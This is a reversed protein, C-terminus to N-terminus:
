FRVMEMNINRTHTQSRDLFGDPGIETCKDVIFDRQNQDYIEVLHYGRSVCFKEADESNMEKKVLGICGFNLHHADFWVIDLDDLDSCLYGLFFHKNFM